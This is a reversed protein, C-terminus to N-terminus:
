SRAPVTRPSSAAPAVPRPPVTPMTMVTGPEPTSTTPVTTTPVTTSPGGGPPDACGASTGAAPLAASGLVAGTADLAEVRDGTLDAGAVAVVAQGGQPAMQDVPTASGPVVLAVTAVATDTAVAVWSAPDGEASGFSGSGEVTLTGGPQTAVLEADVAGADSLELTV